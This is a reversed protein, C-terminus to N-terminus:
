IIYIFSKKIYNTSGIEIEFGMEDILFVRPLIEFGMEDQREHPVTVSFGLEPRSVNISFSISSDFREPIDLEFQMSNEKDIYDKYSEVEFGMDGNLRKYKGNIDIEFGLSSTKDIYNRNATIEFGIDSSQIARPTIEFGIETNKDYSPVFLEFSMNDVLSDSCSVEFGMTNTMHKMALLEFGIEPRSVYLSFGLESEYFHNPDHAFIEFGLKSDDYNSVVDMMFGLTSEDAAVPLVNFQLRSNGTNLAIPPFYEIVLEPPNSTERTRFITIPAESFLAIGNNDLGQIWGYATNTIDIEVYRDEKNDIFSNTIYSIDTPMNNYTINYERWPENVKYVDINENNLTDYHLRLKANKIRSGQPVKSLDFQVFPINKGKSNVGMIMSNNNGYNISSYPSNEVTYSDQVPHETISIVPPEKLEYRAFMRNHPSVELEFGMHKNIRPTIEFGMASNAAHKVDLEFSMNKKRIVKPTIEFGIDRNQYNGVTLEFGITSERYGVLSYKSTMRNSILIEAM